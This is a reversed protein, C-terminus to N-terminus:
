LQTQQTETGSHWKSAFFFAVHQAIKKRDFRCVVQCLSMVSYGSPLAYKGKPKALMSLQKRGYLNISLATCM